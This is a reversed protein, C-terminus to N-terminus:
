STLQVMIIKMTLILFLANLVAREKVELKLTDNYGNLTTWTAGVEFGTSRNIFTSGNDGYIWLLVFPEGSTTTNSHSYRGRIIRIDFTGKEFVFSTAVNQQMNKMQNADIVYCNTKTDITLTNMSVEKVNKTEQTFKTKASKQEPKVEPIIETVVAKALEDILKLQELANSFLPVCRYKLYHLLLQVPSRLM